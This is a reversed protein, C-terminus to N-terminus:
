NDELRFTRQGSKRISTVLLIKGPRVYTSVVEKEHEKTLKRNFTDWRAIWSPSAIGDPM